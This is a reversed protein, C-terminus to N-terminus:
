SKIGKFIKHSGSAPVQSVARDLCLRILDERVCVDKPIWIRKIEPWFKENVTDQKELM